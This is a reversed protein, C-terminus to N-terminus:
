PKEKYPIEPCLDSHPIPHNERPATWHNFFDRKSAGADRQADRLREWLWEDNEGLSRPQTLGRRAFGRNLWVAVYTHLMADHQMWRLFDPQLGHLASRTEMLHKLIQTVMILIRTTDHHPVNRLSYIESITSHLPDSQIDDLLKAHELSPTFVGGFQERIVARVYIVVMDFGDFTAREDHQRLPALVYTAYRHLEQIVMIVAEPSATAALGKLDDSVHERKLM